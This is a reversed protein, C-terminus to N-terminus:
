ETTISSMRAARDRQDVDPQSSSRAGRYEALVLAMDDELPGVVLSELTVVLDGLANDLSPHRLTRALHDLSIMRGSMSRAEVLGDTYLLLRDGALM